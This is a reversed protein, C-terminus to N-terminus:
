LPSFHFNGSPLTQYSLLLTKICQNFRLFGSSTEISRKQFFVVQGDLLDLFFSGKKCNKRIKESITCLVHSTETSKIDISWSVEYFCEFLRYIHDTLFVFLFFKLFFNLKKPSKQRDLRMKEFITWRFSNQNKANCDTCWSAEKLSDFTAM